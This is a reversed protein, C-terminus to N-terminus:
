KIIITQIARPPCSLKFNNELVKITFNASAETRNCFVLAIENNTNLFAVYEIMNGAKGDPTAPCMGFNQTSFLLKANPRIFRSFQGIYYFSSNYIVEGTKTNALIPADCFNGVHNPGGEENLIINWDIWGTCGNKLDNIINHAYREGTFWAGPRPGGEVCGESFLMKKSPWTHACGKVNEYQDGSYWHYAIGDIYDQNASKDKTTQAVIEMSKSMREFMKDRNHDWIYILIKDLGAKELSPGLYKQVFTAEEEATWLCSDWTQSAEAENQVSVAWVPINRNNLEKLFCVFYDAWLQYYKKLLKGGHNMDNNTKMWAPPSWPSILLKLETNQSTNQIESQAAKVLPTIFKDTREMSFSTLTEDKKDVCAWNELSFDCSNMHTRALTYSNGEKVNQSFYSSIIKKQTAEPLQQLVWASSETLAGGFGDFTAKRNHELAEIDEKAPLHLTIDCHTPTDPSAVRDAVKINQLLNNTNKATEIIKQIHM